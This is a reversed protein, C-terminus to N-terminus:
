DDEDVKRGTYFLMVVLSLAAFVELGVSLNMLPIAGGALLNGAHPGFPDQSGFVWAPDHILDEFFAVGHSAFILLSFTIVGFSELGSLFWRRTPKGTSEPIFAVLFLAVLTALVAGGAFGGGPSVHGHIVVYLGFVTVPIALICAANRVIVSAGASEGPM